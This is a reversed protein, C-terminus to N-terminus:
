AAGDAEEDQRWLLMSLLDGRDGPTARREAILRLHDRRARRARERGRKLIGVPLQELLDAFPLMTTWFSDLVATLAEGVSRAQSEVDAAFLTQGVIGLTLRMMEEAVDVTGGDPWRDRVRAACDTMVAAYSAIRERHFAPQM